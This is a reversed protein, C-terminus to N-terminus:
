GLAVAAEDDESSSWSRRVELPPMEVLGGLDLVSIDAVRGPM